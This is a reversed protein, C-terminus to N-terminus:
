VQRVGDFGWGCLLSCVEVVKNVLVCLLIGAKLVWDCTRGMKKRKRRENM